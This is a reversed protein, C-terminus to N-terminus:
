LLQQGTEKQMFTRSVLTGGFSRNDLLGGYERALPVGQSVCQDIINSVEALRHVHVIIEVFCDSFPIETV